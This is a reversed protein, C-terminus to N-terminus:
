ACVLGTSHLLRPRGSRRCAPHDACFFPGSLLKQRAADLRRAERLDSDGVGVWFVQGRRRDPWGIQQYASQSSSGAQRALRSASAPAPKTVGLFSGPSKEEERRELDLRVAQMSMSVLTGQTLRGRM